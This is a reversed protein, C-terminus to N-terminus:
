EESDIGALQNSPALQLTLLVASSAGRPKSGAKILPAEAEALPGDERRREGVVAGERENRRVQRACHRSM